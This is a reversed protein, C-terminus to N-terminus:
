WVSNRGLEFHSKVQDAAFILGYHIFAIGTPFKLIEKLLIDSPIRDYVRSVFLQLPDDLSIKSHAYVKMFTTEYESLAELKRRGHM